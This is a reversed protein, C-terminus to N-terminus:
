TCTCTWGDPFLLSALSTGGLETTRNRNVAFPGVVYQKFVVLLQVERCVVVELDQSVFVAIM